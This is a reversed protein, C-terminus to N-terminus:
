QLLRIVEDRNTHDDLDSRAWELATWGQEQDKVTCDAGRELLLRVIDPALLWVQEQLVEEM